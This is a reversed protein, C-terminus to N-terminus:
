NYIYLRQATVWLIAQLEYGKLGLDYAKNIFVEEIQKYALRGISASKINITKNFVARLAWIDVTVREADLYSINHVFSFTKLSKDTISIEGKAIAFAKYKNKHFTCVKIDEPTLGEGVAKLVKEADKINQEWKNRPSLASIVGAVIFASTNYKNALDKTIKNADKYWNIGILKEQATSAEFYLDINNNILKIYYNSLKKM